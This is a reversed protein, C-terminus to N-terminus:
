GGLAENIANAAKAKRLTSIYVRDTLQANAHGMAKQITRLSVGADDWLSAAAHRLDHCGIGKHGTAAEVYRSVVAWINQATMKHWDCRGREGSADATTGFMTGDDGACVPRLGSELYARVASRAAAPFPVTREKDGKGHRVTIVNEIWDFDCPCVARLEASRMGSLIFLLVIARNRIEYPSCEGPETAKAIVRRIEDYDLLDYDIRAPKPKEEADVPSVDTYKNRIAWSFFAALITLYHRVTNSKTGTSSLASRWEIVNRSEIDKGADVTGAAFDSFRSLIGRYLNVTKESRNMSPMAALYAAAATKYEQTTMKGEKQANGRRVNQM